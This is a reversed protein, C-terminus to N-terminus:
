HQWIIVCNRLRTNYYLVSFKIKKVVVYLVNDILSIISKKISINTFIVTLITQSSM